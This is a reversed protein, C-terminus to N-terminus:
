KYLSQIIKNKSMKIALVAYETKDNLFCNKAIKSSKPIPFTYLYTTDSIAQINSDFRENKEFSYQYAELVQKEKPLYSMNSQMEALSVLSFEGFNNASFEKQKDILIDRCPKKKDVIETKLSDIIELSFESGLKEVQLVIDEQKIKKIKYDSMHKKMAKTDVREVNSCSALFMLTGCVLFLVKLKTM